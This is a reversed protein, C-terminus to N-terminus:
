QPFVCGEVPVPCILSLSWLPRARRRWVITPRQSRDKGMGRSDAFAKGSSTINASTQIGDSDLTYLLNVFPYHEALDHMSTSRAEANNLLREEAIGTIISALLEQLATRYEHYREIISIYSMASM